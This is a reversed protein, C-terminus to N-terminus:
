EHKIVDLPSDSKGSLLTTIQLRVNQRLQPIKTGAKDQLHRLVQSIEMGAGRAMSDIDGSGYRLLYAVEFLFDGVQKEVHDPIFVQNEEFYRRLKDFADGTAAISGGQLNLLDPRLTEEARVLLRYLEALTAAQRQHWETFLTEQEHTAVHLASRTIEL